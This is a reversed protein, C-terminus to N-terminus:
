SSPGVSPNPRPVWRSMLCRSPDDDRSTRTVLLDSYLCLSSRVSFGQPFATPGPNSERCSWRYCCTVARLFWRCNSDLLFGVGHPYPSLGHRAHTWTGAFVARRKPLHQEPVIAALTGQTELSGIMRPLELFQDTEDARALRKRGVVQGRGWPRGVAAADGDGLPHLVVDLMQDPALLLGDVLVSPEQLAVNRGPEAGDRQHGQRALVQGSPHLLQLGLPVGALGDSVFVPKDRRHQVSGNLRPVDGDVGSSALAQRASFALFHNKEALLLIVEQM